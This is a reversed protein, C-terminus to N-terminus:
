KLLLRQLFLLAALIWKARSPLSLANTKENRMGDFPPSASEGLLVSEKVTSESTPIRFTNKSGNGQAQALPCTPNIDSPKISNTGFAKTLGLPYRM